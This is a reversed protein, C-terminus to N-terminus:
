ALVVPDAGFGAVLPPLTKVPIPILPYHLKGTPRQAMGLLKCLGDDALDDAKLVRMGAPPWALQAIDILPEM